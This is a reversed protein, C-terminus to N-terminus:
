EIVRPVLFLGGDASPANALLKERNDTETIEDPRLRQVANQPHAMPEVSDTDVENMQEVFQLIDSLNRAYNDVDKEDIALRALYAIKKVDEPGLQM